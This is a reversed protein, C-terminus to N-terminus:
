SKCATCAKSLNGGKRDRKSHFVTGGACPRLTCGGRLGMRGRLKAEAANLTKSMGLLLQRGYDQLHRVTPKQPLKPGLEAVLCRCLLPQTASDTPCCTHHHRSDVSRNSAGLRSSRTMSRITIRGPGADVARELRRFEGGCGGGARRRPCTPSLAAAAAM